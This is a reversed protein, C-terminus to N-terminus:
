ASMLRDRRSRGPNAFGQAFTCRASVCACVKAPVILTGTEIRIPAPDPRAIKARKECNDRGGLHLRKEQRTLYPFIAIANASDTDTEYSIHAARM